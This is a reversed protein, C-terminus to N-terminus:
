SDSTGQRGMLSVVAKFKGGPGRPIEWVQEVDVVMDGLRDKVRARLDAEWARDFGKAPVVKVRIHDRAVQVIQAERIPMGGKFVPDMRGVQRGDPTVLVDDCRGDVGPLIPLKRGCSCTMHEQPAVGRDGVRYRILPMDENVLGTCVFEGPTGGAIPAGDEGLIELVGAEPWLHLQGAECEGAGCVAEAMGYTERVPCDFAREIAERQYPLLPEANAIAVKMPVVTGSELATEALAHLASSYGWLYEIRYRHLAELYHPLMVPSLHYASMYLQRMASNWVWFPPEKAAVPTVLKGGLIAWRSRISVGHWRRWRAEFLAYWRRMAPRGWWLVISKGTTGSTSWAFMRRPDCDDAVFARSNARVVEKDLLPWNELSEWSRIDGRRRREEWHSRYYPVRSAARHLVRALRDEKWTRWQASGWHERELAEEVLRELDSGYRWSVYRYGQISAAAVKLPYPLWHYLGIWSM